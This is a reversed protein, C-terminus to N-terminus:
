DVPLSECRVDFNCDVLEVVDGSEPKVELILGVGRAYYKRAIADPELPSFEEVVLCDDDCFLDALAEPVHLDLDEDEGHGYGTSLIRAADEAEGLAWEQRYVAGEVPVALMQTGALAGDRGHKFSGGIDVLEPEQPDDGAFTAFDRVSEGCYDVTGDLRQGFWDDTDELPIGDVRVLDNVVICTVGEIQKTADLVRITVTESEGDSLEWENGIALPFYPNTASPSAFDTQFLAPDFNPDYRGGGLEECLERRAARQEGCLAQAEGVEARADALCEQREAPSAANECHAKAAYFDDFAEATCAWSQLNATRACAGDGPGAGVGAATANASGLVTAAAIVAALGLREIEFARMDYGQTPGPTADDRERRVGGPPRLPDVARAGHPDM